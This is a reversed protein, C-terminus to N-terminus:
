VIAGKNSAEGPFVVFRNPPTFLFREEELPIALENKIRSRVFTQDIVHRYSLDEDIALEQDKAGADQGVEVLAQM